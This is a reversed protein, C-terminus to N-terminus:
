KDLPDMPFFSHHGLDYYAPTSDVFTQYSERLTIHALGNHTLPYFLGIEVQVTAVIELPQGYQMSEETLNYPSPELVPASVGVAFRNKGLEQAIVYAPDRYHSARERWHTYYPIAQQLGIHLSQQISMVRFVELSGLFLLLLVPLVLVYEVVAVGRQTDRGRM